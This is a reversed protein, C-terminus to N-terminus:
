MNLLSDRFTFRWRGSSSPLDLQYWVVICRQQIPVKLGKRTREVPCPMPMAEWRKLLFFPWWSLLIWPGGRKNRGKTHVSTSQVEFFDLEFMSTAWFMSYVMAIQRVRNPLGFLFPLTLLEPSAKLLCRFSSSLLGASELLKKSRGSADVQELVKPIPVIIPIIRTSVHAM